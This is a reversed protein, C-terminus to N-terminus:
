PCADVKRNFESIDTSSTVLRGVGCLGAYESALVQCQQPLHGNGLEIELRLCNDQARKSEPDQYRMLVIVGLVVAGTSM